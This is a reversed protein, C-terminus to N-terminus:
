LLRVRVFCLHACAWLCVRSFLHVRTGVRVCMYAHMRVFARVAACVCVRICMCVCLYVCVCVCVYVCLYVCMCVCVCLYVCVCVCVCAYVCLYVCVCVCVCVYVYMCVCVCVCMCVCVCAYVCMCVCPRCVSDTEEICRRLWHERILGTLQCRLHLYFARIKKGGLHSNCIPNLKRNTNKEMFFLISDCPAPDAKEDERGIRQRKPTGNRLGAKIESAIAQRAYPRSGGGVCHCMCLTTLVPLPGQSVDWECLRASMKGRGFVSLATSPHHVKHFMGNVSVPPCKGEGLCQSLRAPIISRTFCGMWLSPRVNEREWVSLSGHQSSPTELKRVPLSVKVTVPFPTVPLSPYLNNSSTNTHISHCPWNVLTHMHIQM